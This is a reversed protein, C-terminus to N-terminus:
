KYFFALVGGGVVSFIFMTLWARYEGEFIIYIKDAKGQIFYLFIFISYMVVLGILFTFFLILFYYFFRVFLNRNEM